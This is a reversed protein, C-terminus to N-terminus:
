EAGRKADRADKEGGARSVVVHAPRVVRGHLTFGPRVVQLVTREPRDGADRELLAEHVAPDFPRDLADIREIGHRRLADLLQREVMALGTAVAGERDAEGLGEIASHIADVVPLLDTVVAGIAFRARDEALREIRRRDNVFQAQERKLRDQADALAARAEDLRAELTPELGAGAETATRAEPSAEADGRADGGGAGAPEEDPDREDDRM